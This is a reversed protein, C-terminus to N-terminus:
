PLGFFAQPLSCFGPGTISLSCAGPTLPCHSISRVSHITQRHARSTDPALESGPRLFRYAKDRIATQTDPIILGEAYLRRRHLNTPTITCPSSLFLLIRSCILTPPLNRSRQRAWTITTGLSPNRIRCGPQLCVEVSDPKPTRSTPHLCVARDTTSHSTAEGPKSIHRSAQDIICSAALSRCSKRINSRAPKIPV